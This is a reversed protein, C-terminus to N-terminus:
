LKGEAIIWCGPATRLRATQEPSLRKTIWEIPVHVKLKLPCHCATCLNLRADQSTALSLAQAREVQRRILEAAPVVFWKTLDGAENLPCAACVAARQEAQDRAVPKQGADIWEILTKAGRVLEKATAAVNRLYSAAQNPDPPLSKPLSPAGESTIFDHWGQTQCVAANFADVEDAVRNYDTPWNYKALLAPNARRAAILQNVIQDFSSGPRSHWKIEPQRFKFGWPIQRQRSSLRVPM